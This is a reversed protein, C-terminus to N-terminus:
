GSIDLAVISCDLPICASESNCMCNSKESWFMRMPLHKMVVFEHRLIKVLLLHYKVTSGHYTLILAVVTKVPVARVMGCLIM